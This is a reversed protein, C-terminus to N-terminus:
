IYAITGFLILIRFTILGYCTARSLGPALGAIAALPAQFRWRFERSVIVGQSTRPATHVSIITDPVFTANGSTNDANSLDKRPLSSRVRVGNM